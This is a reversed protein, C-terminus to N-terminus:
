ICTLLNKLTYKQLMSKRLNMGKITIEDRKKLMIEEM